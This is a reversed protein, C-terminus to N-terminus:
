GRTPGSHKSLLSDLASATKSAADTKTILVPSRCPLSASMSQPLSIPHGCIMLFQRRAQEENQEPEAGEGDVAAVPEAVGRVDSRAEEGGAKCDNQDGDAGGNHALREKTRGL